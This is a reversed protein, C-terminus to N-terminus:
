GAHSIVGDPTAEPHRRVCAFLGDEAEHLLTVRRSNPYTAAGGSDWELCV